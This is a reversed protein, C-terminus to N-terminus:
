GAIALKLRDNYSKRAARAGNRVDDESQEPLGSIDSKVIYAFSVRGRDTARLMGDSTLM